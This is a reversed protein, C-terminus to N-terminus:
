SMSGLLNALLRFETRFQSPIVESFGGLREFDLYKIEELIPSKKAEQKMHECLSKPAMYLVRAKQSGCPSSSKALQKILRSRDAKQSRSLKVESGNSLSCITEMTPKAREDIKLLGTKHLRMMLHFYKIRDASKVSPGTIIDLLHCLCRHWHAAQWLYNKAQKPSFSGPNTKLEVFLPQLSKEFVCLYDLKDAQRNEEHKLPFEPVVFCVKERYHHSLIRELFFNVFLDVRREAAYYPMQSNSELLKMLQEFM